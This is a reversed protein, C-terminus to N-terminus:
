LKSNSPKPLNQLAQTLESLLNDGSDEGAAKTDLECAKLPDLKEIEWTEASESSQRKFKRILDGDKFDSADPNISMLPTRVIRAYFRRRELLTMVSADAAKSQIAAIYAAVDPRKILRKGGTQASARGCKYGAALYADTISDGALHRDAFRQHAPDAPIPIQPATQTSM